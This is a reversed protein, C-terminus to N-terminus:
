SVTGGMRKAQHALREASWAWWPRDPPADPNEAYYVACRLVDEVCPDQRRGTLEELHRFMEGPDAGVLDSPSVYGLRVLDGAAAPGVWPLQQLEALSKLYRVRELPLDRRTAESIEEAPCAVFDALTLGARRLIRSEEPELPLRPPKGKTPKAM